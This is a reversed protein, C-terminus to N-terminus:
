GDIWMGRGAARAADEAARLLASYKTDPPYDIAEALGAEVLALNVLRWDDSEDAPPLWVYRLLRDFRDTESVDKELVVRADEVLRANAGSAALAYPEVPSGPKVSEPTDIGIYRLRHEVGDIMVRITDGDTVDVILGDQTPGTPTFTELGAAAAPGAVGVSPSVSAAPTPAMSACGIVAAALLVLFVSAKQM